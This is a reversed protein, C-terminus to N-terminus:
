VSIKFKKVLFENLFLSTSSYKQFALPEHIAEDEYDQTYKSLKAFPSMSFTIVQEKTSQNNPKDSM